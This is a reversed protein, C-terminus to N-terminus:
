RGSISDSFICCQTRGKHASINSTVELELLGDQTLTMKAKCPTGKPVAKGFDHVAASVKMEEKDDMPITKNRSKYEYLRFSVRTQNEYRTVYGSEVTYPLETGAPILTEIMEEDGIYTNVGYSFDVRPHILGENEAYIAAGFGIAKEPARVYIRDGAVNSFRSAIREKILPIYSSGGTMIIDIKQGRLNENRRLLEEMCDTIKDVLPLIKQNMEAQSLRIRGNGAEIDNYTVGIEEKKSLSEKANKAAAKMRRYAAKEKDKLMEEQIGPVEQVFREVLYDALMEDFKDGAVDVGTSDIYLYPDPNKETIVPNDQVLAIDSTGAGVDVVMITGKQKYYIAAAVPEPLIRVVHYGAKSFADTLYKRETSGFSVPACLLVNREDAELGQIELEERAYDMQTEIIKAAVEMGSMRKDDLEFARDLKMKVSHVVHEPDHIEWDEALVEDCLREGDKESYAYLSPIGGNCYHNGSPLLSICNGDEDLVAPYTRSTGWDVGIIKKGNKNKDM